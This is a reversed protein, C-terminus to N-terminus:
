IKLDLFHKLSSMAVNLSVENVIYKSQADKKISSYYKDSGFELIFRGGEPKSYNFYAFGDGGPSIFIQSLIPEVVISKCFDLVTDWVSDPIPYGNELDWNEQKTIARLKEINAFADM